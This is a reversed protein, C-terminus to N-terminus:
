AWVSASLQDARNGETRRIEWLRGTAFGVLLTGIMIETMCQHPHPHPPLHRHEVLRRTHRRHSDPPWYRRTRTRILPRPSTGDDPVHRGITDRAAAAESSDITDAAVASKHRVVNRLLQRGVRHTVM